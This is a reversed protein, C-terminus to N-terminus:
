ALRFFISHFDSAPYLQYLRNFFSLKAFLFITQLDNTMQETTNHLLSYDYGEYAQWINPSVKISNMKGDASVDRNVIPPVRTFHEQKSQNSPLDGIISKEMSQHAMTFIVGAM